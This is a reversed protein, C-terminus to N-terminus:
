CQCFCKDKGFKDQTDVSTNQCASIEVLIKIWLMFIDM